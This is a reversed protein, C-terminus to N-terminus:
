RRLRQWLAREADTMSARLSKARDYTISTAQGRV